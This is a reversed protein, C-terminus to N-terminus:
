LVFRSTLLGLILLVGYALHLQASQADIEQDKLEQTQFITRVVPVALALSLLTLLVPWPAYGLAVLAVTLVFAGYVLGAMEWNAARRGIVTALTNKGHGRDAEIDRINNAQLIAAVLCGVPLSMLLPDLAFTQRQVYYAGMIIVPGMFVFVTAEGLTVYALSLPRATYFYGALVSLLGLALIPWGCLAVLVLGFLSGVGFSVLGGWYLQDAPLLHRQIVQSGSKSELSDVGSQHDYYDNIMNTGIHIFLSGLLALFFLGWWFRGDLAGLVSGILVPTMSATFSFPRSAEIWSQVSGPAPGVPVTHEQAM